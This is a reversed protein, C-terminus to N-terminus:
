AKTNAGWRWRSRSRGSDDDVSEPREKAGGGGNRARSGTHPDPYGNQSLLIAIWRSGNFQALLVMAVVTLPTSLFAGTLGWLASWFALSLLVVVPDLNLGKAQMRPYIVNGVFFNIGQLGAFLIIPELYGSYQVLAFVAPLATGIAPGVIPIYGTLFIFFAWFLAHDLGLVLMVAYSAAAIMAGTVTQIWLYGQAGTRIEDFIRGAEKREERSGFLHRAKAQFGRRSALLFGLYILIFIADSLLGQMAGVFAGLYRQPNLQRFLERLTPAENIGLLSAGDAILANLRGAYTNQGGPGTSTLQGAFSAINSAVVYVSIGFALLILAFAITLPAWGPLRPARERIRRELGDIMILLFFALAFPTLIGRLWYLAAGVVVVAVVVDANRSSRATPPPENQSM